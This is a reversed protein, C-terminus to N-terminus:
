IKGKGMRVVVPVDGSVDIITSAEDGLDGVNIVCDIMNATEKDLQDPNTMVKEGSINLSTTVIPNGLQKVLELCIENDPVRIGVTKNKSLVTNPTKHSAKLIFTYPGPLLRRMLKYAYDPVIAYESIHKLDSCIISFPKQPERKKIQYIKAVAKKSFVDCGLGYITDTPYVIVGDNKLKEVAIKINDGIDM